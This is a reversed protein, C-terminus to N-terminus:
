SRAGGQRTGPGHVTVEAEAPVVRWGAAFSRSDKASGKQNSVHVTVGPAPDRELRWAATSDKAAALNRKAEGKEGKGRRILKALLFSIVLLGLVAPWLPNASSRPHSPAPASSEPPASPPTRTAMTLTVASGIPVLNGPPPEQMAVYRRQDDFDAPLDPEFIPKLKRGEIGIAAERRGSDRVDPVEVMRVQDPEPPAVPPLPQVTPPRELQPPAPDPSVPPQDAPPPSPPRRAQRMRRAADELADRLQQKAQEVEPTEQNQDRPNPPPVRQQGLAPANLCVVVFWALTHRFLRRADTRCEM